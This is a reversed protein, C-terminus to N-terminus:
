LTNEAVMGRRKVIQKTLAPMKIYGNNKVKLNLFVSEVALELGCGEVELWVSYAVNGYM